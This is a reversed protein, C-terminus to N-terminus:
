FTGSNSSSTMADLEPCDIMRDCALWWIKAVELYWKGVNESRLPPSNVFVMLIKDLTHLEWLLSCLANYQISHTCHM